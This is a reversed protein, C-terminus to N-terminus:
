ISMFFVAKTAAASKKNEFMADVTTVASVKM